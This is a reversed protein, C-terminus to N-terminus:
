PSEKETAQMKARRIPSNVFAEGLATWDGFGDMLSDPLPCLRALIQGTEYRVASHRHARHALRWLAVAGVLAMHAAWDQEMLAPSTPTLVSRPRTRM